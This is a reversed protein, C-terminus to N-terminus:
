APPAVTRARARSRLGWAVLALAGVLSVLAGGRLGPVTVTTRVVSRGAPVPVAQYLENARVISVARGDVEARWTPDFSEGVILWAPASTECAIEREEARWVRVDCRGTARRVPGEVTAMVGAVFGESRAVALAEAPGQVTVSERALYVRPAAREVRYLFLGMSPEVALRQLRPDFPGAVSGILYDIGWWRLLPLPTLGVERRLRPLRTSAFVDNSDLQGVGHSLGVNPLVSLNLADPTVDPVLDRLSFGGFLRAGRPDGGRSDRICMESGM